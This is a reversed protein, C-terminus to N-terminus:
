ATLSSSTAAVAAARTHVGLKEYIHELHTRVTHRSLFLLSAIERNTNGEAVLRLIELERATLGACGNREERERHAVLFPRVLQLIARDREVFDSRSRGFSFFRSTGAPADLWLRLEHVIGLPKLVGDYYPSRRLERLSMFDSVKLPRREARRLIVSLPYTCCLRRRAEAVALSIDPAPRGAIMTLRPTGSSTDWESYTVFDAPISRSLLELALGPFSDSAEPSSATHVLELADQVDDLALRVVLSLYSSRGITVLAV